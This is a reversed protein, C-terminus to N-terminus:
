AAGDDRAFDFPVTGNPIVTSSRERYAPSRVEVPDRHKAKQDGQEKEGEAAESWCASLAPNFELRRTRAVADLKRLRGLDLDLIHLGAGSRTLHSHGGELALAIANQEREHRSKGFPRVDIGAAIRLHQEVPQAVVGHRGRVAFQAFLLPDGDVPLWGPKGHDIHGLILHSDHQV